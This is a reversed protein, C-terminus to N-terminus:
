LKYMITGSAYFTKDSTGNIYGSAATTQTRGYIRGNEINWCTFPADATYGSCNGGGGQWRLGSDPTFPLGTFYLYTGNETTSTLTGQYYFSIICVDGLRLYTGVAYNPSNCANCTPTWSGWIDNGNLSVTNHSFMNITNGYIMTSGNEEEYNGRGLVTNDASDRPILAQIYNGYNDKGYIGEDIDMYIEEDTYFPVGMHFDRGNWDFIPKGVVRILNTTVEMLLDTAKVQFEYRNQIDLGNVEVAISYNDWDTIDAGTLEIWEANSIVDENVQCYRYYIHLENHLGNSGFYKNFFNGNINFKVKGSTYFHFGFANATLYTYPIVERELRTISQTGDKHTTICRFVGTEIDTFEVTAKYVNPIGGPYIGEHIESASLALVNVGNAEVNVASIEKHALIELEVRADSVYRIFQTNDQTVAIAKNDIDIVSMNVFTGDTDVDQFLYRTLTTSGLYTDDGKWTACTITVPMYTKGEPFEPLFETLPISWQLEQLNSKEIITGSLSGFSYTLTNRLTSFDTVTENFVKIDAVNGLYDNDMEIYSPLSLDITQTSRSNNYGWISIDEEVMALEGAGLINVNFKFIGNDDYPMEVILSAEDDINFPNHNQVLYGGGSDHQIAFSYGPFNEDEWFDTEDSSLNGSEYAFSFPASSETTINLPYTQNVQLISTNGDLDSFYFGYFWKNANSTIPQYMAAPVFRLHAIRNEVDVYFIDYRITMYIQTGNVSSILRKSIPLAAPNYGPININTIDIYEGDASGNFTYATDDGVYKYYLSNAPMELHVGLGKTGDDYLSIPEEVEIITPEGQLYKRYEGDVYEGDRYSVPWYSGPQYTVDGEVDGGTQYSSVKVPNLIGVDALFSPVSAPCLFYPRVKYTVKATDEGVYYMKIAEFEAKLFFVENGVYKISGMICTGKFIM